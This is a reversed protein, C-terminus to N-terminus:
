GKSRKMAPFRETREWEADAHVHTYRHASKPDRWNGTAVLGRLDGGGYQRFWSAFTHRFTHFNVWRLRHPPAPKNREPPAVGCALCTARKLHVKLQGGYTFPFVKGVPKRQLEM